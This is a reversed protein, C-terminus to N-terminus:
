EAATSKKDSIFNAKWPSNRKKNVKLLLSNVISLRDGSSLSLRSIHFIIVASVIDIDIYLRVNM